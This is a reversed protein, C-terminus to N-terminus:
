SQAAAQLPRPSRTSAPQARHVVEIPMGGRPHLSLEPLFDPVWDEPVVPDVRQLMTALIVKAEMMAFSKGMCVRSGGSFPVYAGRPIKKENDPTFREPDFRDPDPFWRADKHLVYPSIMVQVGKPIRVGRLVVDRVPELRAAVHRAWPEWDSPYHVRFSRTELVRWDDDPGHAARMTVVYPAVVFVIALAAFTRVIRASMRPM